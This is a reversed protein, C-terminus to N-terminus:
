AVRRTRLILVILTVVLIAGIAIIAWIYGPTPAPEAPPVNVVVDAPPPAQVTVAPPAAVTTTKIIFTGVDSRGKVTSERMATVQWYYANGDTLTGTYTYATGAATATILPSSMDAKASLVFNYSTAGTISAWTFPVNTTLPITAGAEPASLSLVAAAAEPAAVLTFPLGSLDTLSPTTTGSVTVWVYGGTASAGQDSCELWKSELGSWFYADTNKDVGTGYLKISATGTGGVVCVDFWAGTLPAYEPTVTTPNAAYKM